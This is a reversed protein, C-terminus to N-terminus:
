YPILINLNIILNREILSKVINIKSVSAVRDGYVDNHKVAPLTPNTELSENLHETIVSTDHHIDINGALGYNIVQYEESEPSFASLDLYHEIRQSLSWAPQCKSESLWAAQHYLSCHQSICSLEKPYHLNCGTTLRQLKKSAEDIIVKKFICFAKSLEKGKLTSSWM